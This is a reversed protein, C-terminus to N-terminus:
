LNRRSLRVSIGNKPRLTILPEPAITQGPLLTMKFRQAVMSLILLAEMKAFSEGICSRSGGGFPFYAFAPLAERAQPRFREPDFREPEPFFRPNRHTVYPSLIADRGVPIVSGSPLTDDRLATRTQLAWGPPYIRMAESLVMEAYTLNLLDAASPVQGGLAERLEDLLREEVDPHKALLYWTWALANATTEHGALFLNLVEDRLQRDSMARGDEDRAQLLASLLDDAGGGEAGGGEARRTRIIRLITEDLRKLGKSFERNARTPIFGPVPLYRYQNTIHYQGITVLRGLEDVEEKVETSFLAKCVILLALRTMESAVDFTDGEKWGELMEKTKETMIGAYTAIQQRHFYPQMMRRQKLHLPDESTILGKGFVQRGAPPMPMKPYNRQNTVLVHKIDAPDNLLYGASGPQRRFVDVAIGYRLRVVDGYTSACYLLFGLPERLERLSGWFWHAPPGPTERVAQRAHM